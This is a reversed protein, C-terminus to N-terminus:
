CGAQNFYEILMYRSGKMAPWQEMEVRLDEFEVECHVLLMRSPEAVGRANFYTLEYSPM